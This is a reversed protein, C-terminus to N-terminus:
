KIINFTLPYIESCIGKVNITVLYTGFNVFNYGIEFDIDLESYHDEENCVLPCVEYRFGDDGDLITSGSSFIVSDITFVRGGEDRITKSFSSVGDEDESINVNAPDTLFPDFPELYIYYVVNCDFVITPDPDLDPDEVDGDGPPLFGTGSPEAKFLKISGPRHRINEIWTSSMMEDNIEPVVGIISESEIFPYTPCFDIQLNNKVALLLARFLDLYRQWEDGLEGWSLEADHYVQGSPWNAIRIGSIDTVIPPAGDLRPVTKIILTTVPIPYIISGIRLCCETNYERWEDM